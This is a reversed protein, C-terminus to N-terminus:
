FIKIPGILTLLPTLIPNGVMLCRIALADDHARAERAYKLCYVEALSIQRLLCKM